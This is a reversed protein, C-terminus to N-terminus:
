TPRWTFRRKTRSGRQYHPDGVPVAIEDLFVAGIGEITKISPLNDPDATIIVTGSTQHVWSSIAVCAKTAYNKGRHEPKIEFGIHGAAKRIHESDGIRFNIHGVDNNSKDIIRYHYFPVFGRRPDGDVVSDFIVTVDDFIFERPSPPLM